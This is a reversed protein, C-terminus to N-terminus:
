VAVHRLVELAKAVAKDDLGILPSTKVWRNKVSVPLNDLSTDDDIIVYNKHEGFVRVWRQIEEARSTYNGAGIYDDIITISNTAIGRRDLILKWAEAPYQNRHSTTLIVDAGTAAIISALNGAARRNFEMFGDSNMEARKWGPTTVMVGDIDLLIISCEM